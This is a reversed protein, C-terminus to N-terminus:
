KVSIETVNLIEANRHVFFVIDSKEANWGADLTVTFAKEVVRNKEPLSITAPLLNENFAPMARLVHNHVYNPEVGKKVPDNAVAEDKQPSVM